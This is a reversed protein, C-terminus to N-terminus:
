LVVVQLELMAPDGKDGPVVCFPQLLCRTRLVSHDTRTAESMRMAVQEANQRSCLKQRRPDLQESAM